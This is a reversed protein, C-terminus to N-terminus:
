AAAALRAYIATIRQLASYCAKNKGMTQPNHDAIEMYIQAAADILEQEDFRDVPLLRWPIPGIKERAFKSRKQV